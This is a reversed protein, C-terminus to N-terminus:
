EAIWKLEEFSIDWGCCAYTESLVLKRGLQKAASGVQKPILPSAIHRGLWDMGPNHMYEYLPM